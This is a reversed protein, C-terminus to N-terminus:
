PKSALIDLMRIAPPEAFLEEARAFLLKAVQGNVHTDRSEQNPFTDFIGYLSSDFRVAYWTTTGIERLVLARASVLFEEVAQEKGPRARLQALLAFRDM